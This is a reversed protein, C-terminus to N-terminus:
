KEARKSEKEEAPPKPFTDPDGIFYASVKWEKGKEFFVVTLEGPSLGTMFRLDSYVWAQDIREPDETAKMEIRNLKRSRLRGFPKRTKNLADVWKRQPLGNRFNAASAEWSEAFKGKDLLVLYAEAAKLAADKRKANEEIKRAESGQSAPEDASIGLSSAGVLLAVILMPAIKPRILSRVSRGM